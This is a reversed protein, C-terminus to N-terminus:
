ATRTLTLEFEEITPYEKAQDKGIMCKELFAPNGDTGNLNFAKLPDQTTSFSFYGQSYEYDEVYGRVTRIVRLTRKGTLGYVYGCSACKWVHTTSDGNRIMENHNCKSM